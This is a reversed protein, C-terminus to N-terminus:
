DNTGGKKKIARVNNTYAIKSIKAISFYRFNNDFLSFDMGLM